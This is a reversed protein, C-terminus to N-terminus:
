GRRAGAGARRKEQKEIARWRPGGSLLGKDLVEEAGPVTGPGRPSVAVSTITMKSTPQQPPLRLLFDRSLLQAHPGLAPAARQGKGWMSHEASNHLCILDSLLGLPRGFM